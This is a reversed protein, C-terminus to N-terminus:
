NAFRGDEKSAYMTKNKKATPHDAHLFPAADGVFVFCFDFPFKWYETSPYGSGRIQAAIPNELNNNDQGIISIIIPSEQKGGIDTLSILINELFLNYRFATCFFFSFQVAAPICFLFRLITPRESFQQTQFNFYM